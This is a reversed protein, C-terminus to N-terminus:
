SSSILVHQWHTAVRRASLVDFPTCIVIKEQRGCGCTALDPSELRGRASSPVAALWNHNGGTCWNFFARTIWSWTLRKKLKLNSGHKTQCTSKKSLSSTKFKPLLHINSSRMLSATATPNRTAPTNPCQTDRILPKWGKYVHINKKYIYLYIFM